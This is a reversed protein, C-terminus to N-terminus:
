RPQGFDTSGVVCDMKSPVAGVSEVGRIQTCWGYSKFARNINVGMAFASNAWAFKSHDAGAVDEEFNFEDVPQTKAGYPLRALFRPM